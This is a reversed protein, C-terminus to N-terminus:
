LLSTDPLLADGGIDAVRSHGTLAMAVSLEHHLLQLMQAVGQQGDAALAFAWARGLLVGDAGSALARLVDIGSRIGGDMLIEMRGAVADAVHPLARIASPAGDLQRGGHNSVIISGAGVDVARLADERDLIGKLVLRGPWHHRVWALDDWTISPDFNRSVWDTFQALGAGGPMAPAFNGLIHPRGRVGVDWAWVPHSLIQVMRRMRDMITQRGTLTSRMDRYRPSHMILDVTMVLTEVGADRARGLMDAMFARDKIMYLQFLLPKSVSAAVEEIACCASASLIFPVGAAEAARAAQVEGRRAYLGALGIPALAVPMSVERGLLVTSTRVDSVDRMVRQRLALRQLDSVNRRLTEEAYSGGDVYDFLFRPLRRRAQHRFDEVCAIAM